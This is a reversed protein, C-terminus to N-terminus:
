KNQTSLRFRLSSSISLHFYVSLFASFFVLFLVFYVTFHCPFIASCYLKPSILFSLKVKAELFGLMQSSNQYTIIYFGCSRVWFMLSCLIFFSGEKFVPIFIWRLVLVFTNSSSDELLSPHRRFCNRTGGGLGSGRESEKEQIGAALAM